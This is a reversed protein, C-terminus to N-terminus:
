TCPHNEKLFDETVARIPCAQAGGFRTCTLAAAANAFRIAARESAGEALGLAFVGHWVDGAGLTDVATVPFAPAHALDAGDLWFVGRAGDTVAVWAGLTDRARRLATEVPQDPAFDNLGQRSFAVHTAGRLVDAAVPAEADAVAPVGWARAAAFAAQALDPWRNDALVAGPRPAAAFRAAFDAGEALGAGRFNVIQREGEADVLISSFSSRGGARRESLGLDIGEAQLAAVILDGMADQGLRAALRAQGGHRAVALAANAACGGITIVAEDARYKEARRPLEPLQMVIDAVAMGAILVEAM